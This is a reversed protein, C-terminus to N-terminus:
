SQTSRDIWSQLDDAAEMYQGRSRTTGSIRGATRLMATPTWARNVRMGTAAYLRLATRLAIAQYLTVGEQGAFVTTM